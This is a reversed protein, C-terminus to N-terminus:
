SSACKDLAEDLSRYVDVITDIGTMKLPRGTSPGDAVVGFRASPAIERHATILLTMGVSALFDVRTLDVILAAPRKRVAAEIADALKPATALDLDGWVAVVVGCEVWHEAVGFDITSPNM